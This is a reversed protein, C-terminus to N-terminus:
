LDKLPDNYRLCKIREKFSFLLHTFVIVDPECDIVSKASYYILFKQVGSNKLVDFLSIAYELIFVFIFKTLILYHFLSGMNCERLPYHSVM